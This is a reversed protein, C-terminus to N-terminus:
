GEDGFVKRRRLYYFAVGGAILAAPAYIAAMVPASGISMLAMGGLGLAAWASNHGISNDTDNLMNSLKDAKKPAVPVASSYNVPEGQQAMLAVLHDHVARVQGFVQNFTENRIAHGLSLDREYGEYLVARFGEAWGQLHLTEIAVGNAVVVASPVSARDTTIEAVGIARGAFPIPLRSRIDAARRRPEVARGILEIPVQGWGCHEAVLVLEQTPEAGVLSKSDFRLEVAPPGPAIAGVVGAAEPQLVMRTGSEPTVTSLSVSRVPLTLAANVALALLQRARGVRAAEPDLGSLEAFVWTFLEPLEDGPALRLTRAGLLRVALGMPRQRIEIKEAGVLEAAEVVLLIWARPAALLRNALKKRAAEPDISFGGGDIFEAEDAFEAILRAAPDDASTSM